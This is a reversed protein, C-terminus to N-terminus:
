VRSRRAPPVIVLTLGCSEEGLVGSLDSTDNLALYQSDSAILSIMALTKGFGMPDAIIGGYFATPEDAQRADSVRNTFSNLHNGYVQGGAGRLFSCVMSRACDRGGGM